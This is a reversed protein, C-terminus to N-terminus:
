SQGLTNCRKFQDNFNSAISQNTKIDWHWGDRATDIIAFRDTLNKICNTKFRNWDFNIKLTEYVGHMHLEKIICDSLSDLNTIKEPWSPDRIDNWIKNACDPLDLHDLCYNPIFGHIVNTKTNQIDTNALCKKFYSIHENYDDLVLQCSSDTIGTQINCTPRRELYSWLILLNKPEISVIIEQAIESITYNDIARIGLNITTLGTLDGFQSPWSHELPAGSGLTASDGLCWIANELDDPWETDRFGRSNFRYTIDHPYNKFHKRNQCDSLSDPSYFKAQTNVLKPIIIRPLIM